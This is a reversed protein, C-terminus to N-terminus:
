IRRTNNNKTDKEDDTFLEEKPKMKEIENLLQQGQLVQICGNLVMIEQEFKEIQKQIIKKM